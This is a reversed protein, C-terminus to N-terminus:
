FPPDGEKEQYYDEAQSSIDDDTIGEYADSFDPPEGTSNGAVNEIPPEDQNNNNSQRRNGGQGQNSPQRQNNGQNQRKQNNNQQEGEFPPVVCFIAWYTNGTDPNEQQQIITNHNLNPPVDFNLIFGGNRTENAFGIRVWRAKKEQNNQNNNRQNNNRNNGRNNNQNNYSM